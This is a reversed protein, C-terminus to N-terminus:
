TVLSLRLFGKWYARPAMSVFELQVSNVEFITPNPGSQLRILRVRPLYRRDVAHGRRNCGSVEGAFNGSFPNHWAIERARNWAEPDGRDRAHGAPALPDKGKKLSSIKQM